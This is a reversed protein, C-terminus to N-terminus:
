HRIPPIGNPWEPVPASDFLEVRTEAILYRRSQGCESCEYLFETPSTRVLEKSGEYLGEYRLVCMAGCLPTTCNVVLYVHKAM